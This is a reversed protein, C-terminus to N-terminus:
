NPRLILSGASIKKLWPLIVVCDADVERIEQGDLNKFVFLDHKSRVGNPDVITYNGPVSFKEISRAITYRGREAGLVEAVCHEDREFRIESSM